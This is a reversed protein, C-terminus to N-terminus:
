QILGGRRCFGHREHLSHVSFGLRLPKHNGTVTMWLGNRQNFRTSFWQSDRYFYDVGAVQTIDRFGETYQDLIGSAIAINSVETVDNGVAM